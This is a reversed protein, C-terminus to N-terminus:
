WRTAWIRGCGAARSRRRFAEGCACALQDLVTRACGTQAIEQTSRRPNSRATRAAACRSASTATADVTSMIDWAATWCSSHLAAQSARPGGGPNRATAPLRVAFPHSDLLGLTYPHHPRYFTTRRDAVEVARGAYMVLVEDAVEAILGLDHTVLLLAMAALLFDQPAPPSRAPQHSAPCVVLVREASRQPM